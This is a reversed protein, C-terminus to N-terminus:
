RVEIQSVQRAGRKRVLYRVTVVVTETGLRVDVGEVAILTGLWRELAALVTTQLLTATAENSPAFLLRRIGAGFDPRNVREGPSTLLVQRVLQDVYRDYAQEERLRGRGTDAALPFRIASIREDM